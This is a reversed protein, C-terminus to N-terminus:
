DTISYEWTGATLFVNCNQPLCCNSHTDPVLLLVKVFSITLGHTIRTHKNTRTIKSKLGAARLTSAQKSM